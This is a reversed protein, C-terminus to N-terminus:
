RGTGAFNLLCLTISYGLAKARRITQGYSRTSLTTEVAFDVGRSMLHEIRQLMLRGAEFAVSKANFPSLGRAVAVAARNRLM